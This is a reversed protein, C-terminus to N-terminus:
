KGITTDTKKLAEAVTIQLADCDFPKTVWPIDSETLRRETERNLWDIMLIVSVGFRSRIQEAFRDGGSRGDLRNDVIVLQPKRDRIAQLMMPRTHAVEPEYGWDALLCQIDDVIITESEAVLIPTKM